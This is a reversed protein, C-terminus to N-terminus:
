HQQDISPNRDGNLQCSLSHDPASSTEPSGPCAIESARSRGSGYGLEKQGMKADIAVAMLGLHLDAGKEGAWKSQEVVSELSSYPVSAYGAQLVLLTTLFRNTLFCYAGPVASPSQGHL